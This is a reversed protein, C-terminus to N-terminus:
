NNSKLHEIVKAYAKVKEDLAQSDIVQSNNLETNERGALINARTTAISALQVAEQITIEGREVAELASDVLEIPDKNVKFAVKTKEKKDVSWGLHVKAWFVAASLNNDEIHGWIKSIVIEGCKRRGENYAAAVEPQRKKIEFFTTEGIGFYQALQTTTMKGAWERVEEIQKKNLVVRPYGGKNKTKM